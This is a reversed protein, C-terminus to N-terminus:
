MTEPISFTSRSAVGAFFYQFLKDNANALFFVTNRAAKRKWVNRHLVLVCFSHRKLRYFPSYLVICVLFYVLLFHIILGNSFAVASLLHAKEKVMILLNLSINVISFLSNTNTLLFYCSFCIYTHLYINNKHNAM